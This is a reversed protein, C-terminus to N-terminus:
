SMRFKSLDLEFKQLTNEGSLINDFGKISQTSGDARYIHVEEKKSDILWALQVGNSIWDEMKTKLSKLTDSKSYIEAIFDPVIKAFKNKRFWRIDGM